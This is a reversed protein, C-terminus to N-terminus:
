EDDIVQQVPASPAAGTAAPNPPAPNVKITLPRPPLAPAFLIEASVKDRCEKAALRIERKVIAANDALVDDYSRKAARQAELNSTRCDGEALVQHTKGDVLKASFAYFVTAHGLLPADVGWGSTRVELYVDRPPRLPRQVGDVQTRHHSKPAPVEVFTELVLGKKQAFATAIDEGLDHAPDGVGYEECIRQGEMAMAVVAVMGGALINRNPGLFGDNERYVLLMTKPGAREFAAMDLPKWTAACGAVALVLAVVASTAWASIREEDRLMSPSCLSGPPVADM